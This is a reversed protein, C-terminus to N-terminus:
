RHFKTNWPPCYYRILDDEYLRAERQNSIYVAAFPYKSIDKSPVYARREWKGYRIKLETKVAKSYGVYAVYLRRPTPEYFAIYLGMMDDVRDVNDFHTVQV